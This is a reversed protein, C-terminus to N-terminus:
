RWARVQLGRTIRSRAVNQGVGRRIVFVGVGEGAVKDLREGRGDM